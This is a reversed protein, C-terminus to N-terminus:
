LFNILFIIGKLYIIFVPTYFFQHFLGNLGDTINVLHIFGLTFFCLLFLNLYYPFSLSIYFEFPNIVFYILTILLASIVRIIVKLNIVDDLYGLFLFFIFYIYTLLIDFNFNIQFLAFIYILIFILFGFKPTDIEHLKNKSLDFLNLINCLFNLKYLVLINLFIFLLFIM